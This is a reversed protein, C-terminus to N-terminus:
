LRGPYPATTAPQDPSIIDVSGGWNGQGFGIALGEAVGANGSQAWTLNAHKLTTGKFIVEERTKIVPM